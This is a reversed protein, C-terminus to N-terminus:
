TFNFGRYYARVVDFHVHNKRNRYLTHLTTTWNYPIKGRRCLFVLQCFNWLLMCYLVYDYVTISTNHHKTWTQKTWTFIKFSTQRERHASTGRHACKGVTMQETIRSPSIVTSFHACRPADARRSCWVLKLIKVQVFCVHVFCWLVSHIGQWAHQAPVSQQWQNHLERPHLSLWSHGQLPLLQYRLIGAWEQGTPIMRWECACPLWQLFM